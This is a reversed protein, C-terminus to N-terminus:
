DFTFQLPCSGSAGWVESHHKLFSVQQFHYILLFLLYRTICCTTAKGICVCRYSFQVLKKGSCKKQSRYVNYQLSFNLRPFSRNRFWCKIQLFGPDSTDALVSFPSHECHATASIFVSGFSQNVWKERELLQNFSTLRLRVQEKCRGRWDDQKNVDVRGEGGGEVRGEVDADVGRDWQKEKWTAEEDVLCGGENGKQSKWRPSRTLRNDQKCASSQDSWRSTCMSWRSACISVSGGKSGCQQNNKVGIIFFVYELKTLSIWWANISVSRFHRGDMQLLGCCKNGM